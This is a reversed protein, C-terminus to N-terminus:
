AFFRRGAMMIIMGVLMALFVNRSRLAVAATCAAAVVGLAGAALIGPAVLSVLLTGPLADMFGRFRGKNPLRTSLLLGGLRLAYTVLAAAGIAAYAQGDQLGWTM